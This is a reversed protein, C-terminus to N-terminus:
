KEGLNVDGRRDAVELSEGRGCKEEGVAHDGIRVGRPGVDFEQGIDWGSPDRDPPWARANADLAMEM